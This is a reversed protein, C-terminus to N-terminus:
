LQSPPQNVKYDVCDNNKNIIYYDGCAVVQRHYPTDKYICRDPHRCQGELNGIHVCNCCYVKSM